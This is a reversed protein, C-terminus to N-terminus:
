RSASTSANENPSKARRPEIVVRDRRDARVPRRQRRCRSSVVVDVHRREHGRGREEHLRVFGCGVRRRVTRGRFLALGLGCRRPVGRRQRGFRTRTHRGRDVHARGRHREGGRGGGEETGRCRHAVRRRRGDREDCRHRFREVCDFRGRGHFRDVRGRGELDRRAGFDRFDGRRHVLTRERRHQVRRLRGRRDLRLLLRVRFREHFRRPRLGLRHTPATTRRRQSRGTRAQPLPAAQQPRRRCGLRGPAVSGRRPRRTATGSRRRRHRVLHQSRRPAFSRPARVPARLRVPRRPPSPRPPEPTPAAAAAAHARHPARQAAASPRAPMSGPRRRLRVASSRTTRQTGLLSLGLGRRRPAGRRRLHPTVTWCSSLACARLKLQNSVLKTSPVLPTVRETATEDSPSSM